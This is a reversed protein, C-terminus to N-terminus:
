AAKGEAVTEAAKALATRQFVFTALDAVTTVRWGHTFDDGRPNYLIYLGDSRLEVGGKNTEDPFMEGAPQWRLALGDIELIGRGKYVASELVDDYSFGTVRIIARVTQWRRIQDELDAIRHGIEQLDSQTQTLNTWTITM